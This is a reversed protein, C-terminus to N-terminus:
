RNKDSVKKSMFWGLILPILTMVTYSAALRFPARLLDFANIVTDKVGRYLRYGISNRRPDVAYQIEQLSMKLERGYFTTFEKYIEETSKESLILLDDELRQVTDDLSKGKEFLLLYLPILQSKIEESTDNLCFHFIERGEETALSPLTYYFTKFGLEPFSPPTKPVDQSSAYHEILDKGREILSSITASTLAGDSASALISMHFCVVRCSRKRLVNQFATDSLDAETVFILVRDGVDEKPFSNEILQEKLYEPVEKWASRPEYWFSRPSDKKLLTAMQVSIWKQRYTSNEAIWLISRPPLSPIKSLSIPCSKGKKVEIKTFPNERMVKESTDLAAQIEKKSKFGDLIAFMATSCDEEIIELTKVVFDMISFPSHLKLCYYAGLINLIHEKKKPFQAGLHEVIQDLTFSEVQFFSWSEPRLHPTGQSVTIVTPIKEKEIFDLAIQLLGHLYMKKSSRKAKVAAAKVPQSASPIGMKVSLQGLLTSAMNSNDRDLTDMGESETSIPSSAYEGNFQTLIFLSSEPNRKIRDLLAEEMLQQTNSVRGYQLLEEFNCCYVTGRQQGYSIAIQTLFYESSGSLFLFPMEKHKQFFISLREAEPAVWAAFTEVPEINPFFRDAFRTCFNNNEVKKTVQTKLTLHDEKMVTAIYESVQDIGLTIKPNKKSNNCYYRQVEKLLSVASDPFIKHSFRKKALSVIATSFGEAYEFQVRSYPQKELRKAIVHETEEPTMEQLEIEEIRRLLGAGSGYRQRLQNVIGQDTTAGVIHLLGRGMEEKYADFITIDSSLLDQIEDILIICPTEKCNKLIHKLLIHIRNKIGGDVWQSFMGEASKDDKIEKLKLRFIAWGQFTNVGEQLIRYSLEEFLATKGSGAPGRIIVFGDAVANILRQMVSEREHARSMEQTQITESMNEIYNEVKAESDFFKTVAESIGSNSVLQGKRPWWSFMSM